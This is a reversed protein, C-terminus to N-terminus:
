QYKKILDKVSVFGEPHHILIHHDKCLSMLNDYDFARKYVEEETLGRKCFSLIHHVEQTPTIKGEELCKECLPNNQVKLARLNKWQPTNYISQRFKRRQERTNEEM